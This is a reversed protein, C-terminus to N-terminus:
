RSPAASYYSRMAAEVTFGWSHAEYTKFREPLTYRRAAEEATAGSQLMREAHRRFDDFLAAQDRVTEVGCVHGHGPVFRTQGGYGAFRDLVTRWSAMDADIAVPLRRNFL